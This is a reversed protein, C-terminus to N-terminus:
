PDPVSTLTTPNDFWEARGLPWVLTMAQGVVHDTPVSGTAGSGDDNARSDRSNTRHDG